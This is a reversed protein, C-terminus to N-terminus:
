HTGMHHIPTDKQNPPEGTPEPGYDTIQKSLAM